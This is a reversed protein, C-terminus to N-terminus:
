SKIEKQITIMTSVADTFALHNERDLHEVAILIGDLIKSHQESEYHRGEAWHRDSQTAHYAAIEALKQINTM